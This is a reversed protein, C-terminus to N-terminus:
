ACLPADGTRRHCHGVEESAVPPAVLGARGAIGELVPCGNEDFVGIQEDTLAAMATGEHMQM